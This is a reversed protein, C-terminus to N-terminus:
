NREDLFLALSRVVAALYVDDQSDRPAMALLEARSLDELRRLGRRRLRVAVRAMARIRLRIPLRTYGAAHLWAIFDEALPGLLPLSSIRAHSRPYFDALM